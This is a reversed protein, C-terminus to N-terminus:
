ITAHTPLSTQRIIFLSLKDDKVQQEMERLLTLDFEADDIQFKEGEDILTESKERYRDVQEQANEKASTSFEEITPALVMMKASYIADAKELLEKNEELYATLPLKQRFAFVLQDHKDEQFKLVTTIMEKPRENFLAVM